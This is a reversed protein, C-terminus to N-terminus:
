AGIARRCRLRWCLRRSSNRSAAARDITDTGLVFGRAASCARGDRLRRLIVSRSRRLRPTASSTTIDDLGAKSLLSRAAKRQVLPEGTLDAPTSILSRVAYCPLPRHAGDKLDTQLLSIADTSTRGRIEGDLLATRAYRAVASRGALPAHQATLPVHRWRGRRTCHGFRSSRHLWDPRQRATTLTM